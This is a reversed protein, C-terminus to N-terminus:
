RRILQNGESGSRFAHRLNTSDYKIGKPHAVLLYVLLSESPQLTAEVVDSSPAGCADLVSVGSPTLFKEGPHTSGAGSEPM